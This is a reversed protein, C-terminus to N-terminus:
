GREVEIRNSQYDLHHFSFPVYCDVPDFISVSSFFSTLLSSVVIVERPHEKKYAHIRYHAIVERPHEKKYAHIRYHVDLMFENFDCRM